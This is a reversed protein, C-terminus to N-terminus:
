LKLGGTLALLLLPNSLLDNGGSSGGSGGFGGSLLLMSVLNTETELGVGVQSTSPDIAQYTRRTDPKDPEQLTLSAIRPEPALMSMLMMNQQLGKLKKEIRSEIKSMDASVRKFGKATERQLIQIDRGNKKIDRALRQGEKQTLFSEKLEMALPGRKTMATVQRKGRPSQQRRRGLGRRSRFKRRRRRRRRREAFDEDDEGPMSEDDDDEFLEDIDDDEFLEDIDDDELIDDAFDDLM